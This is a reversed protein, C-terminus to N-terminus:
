KPMGRKILQNVINEATQNYQPIKIDSDGIADLAYKMMVSPWQMEKFYWSDLTKPTWDFNM